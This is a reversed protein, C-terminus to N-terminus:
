RGLIMTTPTLPYRLTCNLVTKRSVGYVKAIEEKPWLKMHSLISIFYREQETLKIHDPHTKSTARPVYGGLTSNTTVEVTNAEM